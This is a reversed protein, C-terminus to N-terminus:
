LTVAEGNKDTLSCDCHYGGCDMSAGPRRPIYNRSIYWSARHTSGDLKACTACHKETNGLNWTLVQNKKAWLAAGNYISTVTATYSDAKGIVWQFFDFDPEKRLEKIQEFVGDVFAAEQTLQTQLWAVADADAPTEGGGDIYGTDFASNFAETMAQRFQNKPATANGGEFYVTMASVIENNYRATIDPVGGAAYGAKVNRNYLRPPLEAELFQVAEASLHQKVDPVAAVAKTIFQHLKHKDM